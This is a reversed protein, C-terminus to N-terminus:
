TTDLEKCGRPSYGALSRQGHFEGPLSVPTPNGHEGVLSRGREPVSGPDGANGSFEKGDSDGPFGWWSEHIAEVGIVPVRQLLPPFQVRFVRPPPAAGCPQRASVPIICGCALPCGRSGAAELLWSLSAVM